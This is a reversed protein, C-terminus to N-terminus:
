RETRLRQAADRGIQQWRKRAEAHVSDIRKTESAMRVFLEALGDIDGLHVTEAAIRGRPGANHYNGLAVCAAGTELGMFDYATAETTGGDMLKRQYRFDGNESAMERAVHTMWLTMRGSFI